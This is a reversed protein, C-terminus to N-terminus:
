AEKLDVSGLSDMFRDYVGKLLDHAEGTKGQEHRMRVLNRIIHSGYTKDSHKKALEMAQIFNEENIEDAMGFAQIKLRKIRNL